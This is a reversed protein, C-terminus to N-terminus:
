IYSYIYICAHLIIIYIYKCIIINMYVHVMKAQLVCHFNLTYFTFRCICFEPHMMPSGSKTFFFNKPDWIHKSVVPYSSLEEDKMYTSFNLSWSLCRFKWTLWTRPVFGSQEISGTSRNKERRRLMAFSFFLIKWPLVGLEKAGKGAALFEWPQVQRDYIWMIQITAGKVPWWLVAPVYSWLSRELFRTWLECRQFFILWRRLWRPFPCTLKCSPINRLYTHGHTYRWYRAMERWVTGFM